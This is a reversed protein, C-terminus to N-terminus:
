KFDIAVISLDDSWHDQGSVVKLQNVLHDSYPYAQVASRGILQKFENLTWNKGEKTRIEFAGDSFIYLVERPNVSVENQQYNYNEMTGLPMGRTMLSTIRSKDAALLLAPPHGASAYKLKRSATNYIGCWISFYLQGHEAMQFQQNLQSLVAAPQLLAESSTSLHRLVNVVSVSHLAAAAGHGCVDILYLAFNTQNVFHYGFADGGLQVCPQFAWDATLTQHELPAPLISRVYSAAAELDKSIEDSAAADVARRFEHRLVHNEGIQIISENEVLAQINIRIGDLYVGNTSRLDTVKLNGDSLAFVCHNQSVSAEPLCIDATESRGCLLPQDDLEYRKGPHAGREVVLYHKKEVEESGFDPLDDASFILTKKTKNSTAM